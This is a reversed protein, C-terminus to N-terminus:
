RCHRSSRIVPILFQSDPIQFAYDLESNWIRFEVNLSKHGYYVIGFGEAARPQRERADGVDVLEHRRELAVLAALHRGILPTGEPQDAAGVTLPLRFVGLHQPHLNRLAHQGRVLELREGVDALTVRAPEPVDGRPLVDLEVEDLQVVDLQRHVAEGIGAHGRPLRAAVRNAVDRGARVRADGGVLAEIDRGVGLREGTEQEAMREARRQRALELDREFAAGRIVDGGADVVEPEPRHDPRVAAAAEPDGGAAAGRDHRGRGTQQVLEQGSGFDQADGLRHQAHELPQTVVLM